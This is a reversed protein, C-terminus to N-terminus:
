VRTRQKIALEPLGFLQREFHLVLWRNCRDRERQELPHHRRLPHTYTRAPTQGGAQARASKCVPSRLHQILTMRTVRTIKKKKCPM